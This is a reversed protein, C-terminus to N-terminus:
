ARAINRADGPVPEYEHPDVDPSTIVSVTTTRNGGIQAAISGWFNEAVVVLPKGTASAASGTASGCGSLGAATALAILCILSLRGATPGPRRPRFLILRTKM